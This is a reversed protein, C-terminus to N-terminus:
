GRRRVRVPVLVPAPRGLHQQLWALFDSLLAPM